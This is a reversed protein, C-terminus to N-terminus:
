APKSLFGRRGTGMTQHVVLVCSALDAKTPADPKCIAANVWRPVSKKEPGSAVTAIVRLHGRMAKFRKTFGIFGATEPSGILVDIDAHFRRVLAEAHAVSTAPSAVYGAIWLGRGLWCQFGLDSDLILIMVRFM